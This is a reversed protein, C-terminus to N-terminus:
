AVSAAVRQNWREIQRRIQVILRRNVDKLFRGKSIAFFEGATTMIRLTATIGGNEVSFIAKMDAGHPARKLVGRLKGDLYDKTFASPVFNQYQINLDSM